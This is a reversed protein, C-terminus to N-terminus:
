SVLGCMSQAIIVALLADALYQSIPPSYKGTKYKIHNLNNKLYDTKM